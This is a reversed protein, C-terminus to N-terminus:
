NSPYRMNDIKYSEGDRVLDFILPRSSDSYIDRRFTGNNKKIKYDVMYSVKSDGDVSGLLSIHIDYVRQESFDPQKDHTEYYADSFMANYKETDGHALADFYGIMFLEAASASSDTETVTYEEGGNRVHLARDLELYSDDEFISPSDPDYLAFRNPDLDYVDATYPTRPDSKNSAIKIIIWVAAAVLLAAICIVILCFLRSRRRRDRKIEHASM